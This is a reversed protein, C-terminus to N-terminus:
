IVKSAVRVYINNNTKQLHPIFLNVQGLDCQHISSRINFELREQEMRTNSTVMYNSIAM